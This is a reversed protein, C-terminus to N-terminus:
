RAPQGGSQGSQGLHSNHSQGRFPNASECFAKAHFAKVGREECVSCEHRYKCPNFTCSYPDRNFLDCTPRYQAGASMARHGRFSERDVSDRPMDRRHGAARPVDHRSQRPEPLAAGANCYKDKLHSDVPDSWKKMKDEIDAVHATHVDYVAHWRYQTALCAIYEYYVLFDDIPLHNQILKTKMMRLAGHIFDYYSPRDKDKSHSKYIFQEALCKGPASETSSAATIGCAAALQPNEALIKAPSAGHPQGLASPAPSVAPHGALAGAYVQLSPDLPAVPTRPAPHTPVKFVPASPTSLGPVASPAPSFVSPNAPTTATVTAPPQQGPGAPTVQPNQSQPSNDLEMVRSRINVLNAQQAELVNMMQNMEEKMKQWQKVLEEEQARKVEQEADKAQKQMREKELRMREIEAQIDEVGEPPASLDESIVEIDEQQVGKLVEAKQAPTLPEQKCNKGMPLPHGKRPRGCKSCVQMKGM